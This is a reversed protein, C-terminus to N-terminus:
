TAQYTSMFLKIMWCKYINLTALEKEELKLYLFCYGLPSERTTWQNLIQRAICPVWTWDKTESSLDWMYHPLGAWAECSSLRCEHAQVVRGSLLGKFDLSGPSQLQPRICGFIFSVNKYLKRSLLVTTFMRTCVDKCVYASINTPIIRPLPIVGQTSKQM